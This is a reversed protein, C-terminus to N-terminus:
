RKARSARGARPARPKPKPSDPVAALPPRPPEPDEWADGGAPGVDPVRFSARVLELADAGHDKTIIGAGVTWGVATILACAEVYQAATLGAAGLQAASVRNALPISTTSGDPNAYAVEGSGDAAGSPDVDGADPPSAPAVPAPDELALAPTGRRENKLKALFAVVDARATAPVLEASIVRGGYRHVDDDNVARLTDSRVEVRALVLLEDRNELPGDPELTLAATLSYEPVDPM